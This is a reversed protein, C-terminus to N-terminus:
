VGAQRRLVVLLAAASTLLLLSAPVPVPNPTDASNVTLTISNQPVTTTFDSTTGVLSDFDLVLRTTFTLIVSENSLAAVLPASVTSGAFELRPGLTPTPNLFLADLRTETDSVLSTGSALSFDIEFFASGAGSFAGGGNDFLTFDYDLGITDGVDASIMGFLTFVLSTGLDGFAVNDQISGSGALSVSATGNGAFPALNAGPLITASVQGSTTDQPATVTAPNLTLTAAEAEDVAAALPTLTLGMAGLTAVYRAQEIRTTM